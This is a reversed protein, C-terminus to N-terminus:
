MGTRVPLLKLLGSDQDQIIKENEERKKEREKRERREEEGGRGARRGEKEEEEKKKLPVPFGQFRLRVFALYTSYCNIV